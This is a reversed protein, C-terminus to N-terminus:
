SQVPLSYTTPQCTTSSPQASSVAAAGALAAVALVIVGIAVVTLVANTKQFEVKTVDAAAVALRQAGPRRSPVTFGVVSDGILAADFLQIREGSRLSLRVMRPKQSGLVEPTPGTQVRWTSCAALSLALVAKVQKM